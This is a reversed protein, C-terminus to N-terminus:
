TWKRCFHGGKRFMLRRRANVIVLLRGFDLRFPLAIWFLCASVNVSPCVPLCVPLFHYVGDIGHLINLFEFQHKKITMEM